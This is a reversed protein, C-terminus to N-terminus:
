PLPTSPITETNEVEYNISQNEVSFENTKEVQNQLYATQSGIQNKIEEFKSQFDASITRFGQNFVAIASNKEQKAANQEKNIEPLSYNLYLVWISVIVVMSIATLFIIWRKKVGDEARRLNRIKKDLVNMTKLM